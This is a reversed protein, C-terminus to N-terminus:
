PSLYNLANHTFPQKEWYQKLSNFLYGESDYSTNATVEDRTQRWCEEVPSIDPAATPLFMYPIEKKELYGRVLKNNNWTAKDLLLLMNPFKLHILKINWLVEEKVQRKMRYFHFEATSSYAGGISIARKSGNKYM